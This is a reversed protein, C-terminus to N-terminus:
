HVCVNAISTLTSLSEAGAMDNDGDDVDDHLLFVDEEHHHCHSPPCWRRRTKSDRPTRRQWSQTTRLTSFIMITLIIIITIIHSLTFTAGSQQMPQWVKQYWRTDKAAQHLHIFSHITPHIFSHISWETTILFSSVHFYSWCLEVLHLTLMPLRAHHLWANQHSAFMFLERQRVLCAQHLHHSAPKGSRSM